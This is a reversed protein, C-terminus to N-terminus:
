TKQPPVPPQLQYPRGAGRPGKRDNNLVWRAPSPEGPKPTEADECDPPILRPPTVAQETSPPVYTQLLITIIVNSARTDASSSSPRCVLPHTPDAPSPSQEPAATTGREPERAHELHPERQPQPRRATDSSRPTDGATARPNRDQISATESRAAESYSPSAATTATNARGCDSTGRTRGRAQRLSRRPDGPRPRGSGFAMKQPLLAVTDLQTASGAYAFGPISDRQRSM